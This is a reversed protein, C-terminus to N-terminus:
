RELAIEEIKAAKLLDNLAPLERSKLSGLKEFLTKLANLREAVAAALQTTPAADAAQLQSMLSNLSGGIGSLSDQAGAGGPGGPGMPGGM